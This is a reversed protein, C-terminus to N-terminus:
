VVSAQIFGLTQLGTQAAHTLPGFDSSEVVKILVTKLMDVRSAIAPHPVSAASEVSATASCLRALALTSHLYDNLRRTSFSFIFSMFIIHVFLFGFFVYWYHQFYLTEFKTDASMKAANALRALSDVSGGRASIGVAADESDGAGGGGGGATDCGPRPEGPEGSCELFNLQGVPLVLLESLALAANTRTDMTLNGTDGFVVDKLAVVLERSEAMSLRTRESAAALKAVSACGNVAVDDYPTRVMSTMSSLGNAVAEPSPVPLKALVDEPLQGCICNCRPTHSCHTFM